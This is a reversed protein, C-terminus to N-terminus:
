RIKSMKLTQNNFNTAVSNQTSLIAAFVKSVAEKKDDGAGAAALRWACVKPPSITCSASGISSKIGGSHVINRRGRGANRVDFERLARRAWWAIRRALRESARQIFNYWCRWSRTARQFLANVKMGNFRERKAAYKAANIDAMASVIASRSGVCRVWRFRAPTSPRPGLCRLRRRPFVFERLRLLTSM